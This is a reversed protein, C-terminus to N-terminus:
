YGGFKKKGKKQKLTKLVSMGAMGTVAIPAFSGVTAISGTLNPAGAGGIATARSAVGGAVGLGVGLGATGIAINRLGKFPDKKKAM